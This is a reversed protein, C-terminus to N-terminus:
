KESRRSLMEGIIDLVAEINLHRAPPGQDQGCLHAIRLLVMWDKGSSEHVHLTESSFVALNTLPHVAFLSGRNNHM